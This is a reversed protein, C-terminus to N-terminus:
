LQETWSVDIPNLLVQREAMSLSPLVAPRVIVNLYICGTVQWTTETAKAGAKGSPLWGIEATTRGLPSLDIIQLQCSPHDTQCNSLATRLSPMEGPSLESYGPQPPPHPSLRHQRFVM